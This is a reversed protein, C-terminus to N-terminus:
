SRLLSISVVTSFFFAAKHIHFGTIKSYWHYHISHLLILIDSVNTQSSKTRRFLGKRERGRIRCGIRMEATVKKKETFEPLIKRVSICSGMKKTDSRAVAWKILSTNIERSLTRKESSRWLQLISFSWPPIMSYPKKARVNKRNKTNSSCNRGEERFTLSHCKPIISISDWWTRRTIGATSAWWSGWRKWRTSSSNRTLIWGSGWWCHYNYHLEFFGLFSFVFGYFFDQCELLFYLCILLATLGKLVLVLEIFCLYFFQLTVNQLHL